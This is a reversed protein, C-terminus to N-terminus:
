VDNEKEDPPRDKRASNSTANGDVSNGGQRAEERKERRRERSNMTREKKLPEDDTPHYQTMKKCQAKEFPLCHCLARGQMKGRGQIERREERLTVVEEAHQTWCRMLGDTEIRSVMEKDKPVEYVYGQQTIRAKMKKDRSLADAIVNQEGDIHTIWFKFQHRFSIRCLERVLENLDPRRLCAVKRMVIHCSATNDCFFGVAKGKWLHGCMRAVLVVGLLEFFTIDPKHPNKQQLYEQYKVCETWMTKFSHQSEVVFGGVGFSTAADTFVTIDATEPTMLVWEMPLESNETSLLATEVVALDRMHGKKLTVRTYSKYPARLEAALEEVHPAIEQDRRYVGRM